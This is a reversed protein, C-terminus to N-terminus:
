INTDRLEMNYSRILKPRSSVYLEMMNTGSQVFMKMMNRFDVDCAIRIPFYQHEGVLYKWTIDIEVDNYNLELRECIIKKPIKLHCAELLM